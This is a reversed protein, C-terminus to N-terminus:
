NMLMPKILLEYLEQANDLHAGHRANDLMVLKANVSIAALLQANKQQHEMSKSGFGVVLPCRLASVDWPAKVRIESMEAMLTSGENRRQQKTSEPLREWIKDGVMRRMFREAFDEPDQVEALLTGGLGSGSADSRWMPSTEYVAVGGLGLEIGAGIATIGGISHGFVFCKHLDVNMRASFHEILNVLDAIHEAFTPPTSRIVSGAYGRRDHSVVSVDGQAIRALRRMSAMRDMGGHVLFLLQDSSTNAQFSVAIGNITERLVV